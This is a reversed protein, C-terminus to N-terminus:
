FSCRFTFGLVYINSARGKLWSNFSLIEHEWARSWFYFKRNMKLGLVMEFFLLNVECMVILWWWKRDFFSNLLSYIFFKYGKLMIEKNMFGWLFGNNIARQIIYSLAEVCVFILFISQRTEFSSLNTFFRKKKWYLSNSQLTSLSLGSIVFIYIDFTENDVLLIINFILSEM